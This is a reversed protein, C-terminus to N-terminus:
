VVCVEGYNGKDLLVICHRNQTVVVCDMILAKATSVKGDVFQVKIYSVIEDIYTHTEEM